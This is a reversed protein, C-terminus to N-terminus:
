IPPNFRQANEAFETATSLVSAWQCKPVAFMGIDLSTYLAIAKHESQESAERRFRPM